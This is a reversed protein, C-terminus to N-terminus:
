QQNRLLIIVNDVESLLLVFMQMQCVPLPGETLETFSVAMVTNLEHQIGVGILGIQKGKLITKSLWPLWATGTSYM